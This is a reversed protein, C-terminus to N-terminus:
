RLRRRIRRKRGSKRNRKIKKGEKNEKEIEEESIKRRWEEGHRRKLIEKKKEDAKENKNM